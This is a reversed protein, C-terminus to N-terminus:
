IHVVKKCLRESTEGVIKWSSRIKLQLPGVGCKLETEACKRAALVDHPVKFVM